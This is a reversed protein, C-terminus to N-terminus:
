LDRQSGANDRKSARGLEEQVYREQAAAGELGCQVKRAAVGARQERRRGCWVGLLVCIGATSPSRSLPLAASWGGPGTLRGGVARREGGVGGGEAARLGTDGDLRAGRPTEPLQWGGGDVVLLLEGARGGILAGGIGGRRGKRGSQLQGGVSGCFARGATRGRGGVHAELDYVLIAAAVLQDVLGCAGLRPGRRTADVVDLYDLVVFLALGAIM